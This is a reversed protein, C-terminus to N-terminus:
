ILKGFLQLMLMTWCIFYSVISVQYEDRIGCIITSVGCFIWIIFIIINTM